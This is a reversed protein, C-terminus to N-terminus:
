VLDVAQHHWTGATETAVPTFIHTASLQSYQQDQQHRCPQSCSRNGHSHQQRPRRYAQGVHRGMGAAQGEVMARHWRPRQLRASALSVPEKVAPIQAM